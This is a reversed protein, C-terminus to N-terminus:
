ATTTRADCGMSLAEGSITVITESVAADLDEQQLM